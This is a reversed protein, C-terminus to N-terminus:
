GEVIRIRGVGRGTSGFLKKFAAPSLDILRPDQRNISRESGGMQGVDNVWVRVRKGTDMDEVQVWKNLYKGRLSWQVAATMASPNYKEGNATPGGAVGDSGGSGNYYTALGTMGGGRRTSAQPRASGGGRFEVHGGHSGDYDNVYWGYKAGHQRIWGISSGHIDMANGDLHHSGGAGGVARNKADSRKGSAVDGARVRGGSDRMMAAFSNAAGQGLILPRGNADKAGPITYGSGTESHSAAVAPGSAWQGPDVPGGGGGYRAYGPPLTAAAAPPMLMNMLWSGPAMPNYPAAARQGMAGQYNASSVTQGYRQEKVQSELYRRAEGQPDLQPYFRLQELLYRNTTTGARKALQYLQPSVAKGSSVNALESHLWDGALVPRVTFGKVTSDPLAAAASRPVGRNEPGPNSGQSPGTGVKGPGV